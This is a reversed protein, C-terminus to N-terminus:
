VCVSIVSIIDLLAVDASFPDFEVGLVADDDVVLGSFSEEKM